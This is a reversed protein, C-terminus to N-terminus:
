YWISKRAVEVGEEFAVIALRKQTYFLDFGVCDAVIEYLQQPDYNSPDLGGGVAFDERIENAVSVVQDRNQIM